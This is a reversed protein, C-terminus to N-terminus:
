DDVGEMRVLRQWMRMDVVMGARNEEIATKIEKCILTRTDIELDEWNDELASAVTHVAYTSRGLVYRFAYFLIEESLIM